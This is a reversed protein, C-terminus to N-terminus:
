TVAQLRSHLETNPQTKGSWTHLELYLFYAAKHAIFIYLIQTKPSTKHKKNKLM